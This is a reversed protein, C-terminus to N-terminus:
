GCWDAYVDLIVPIPSDLVVRQFNSSSAEFIVDEKRAPQPQTHSKANVKPPGSVNERPPSQTSPSSHDKRLSPHIKRLVEPDVSNNLGAARRQDLTWQALL